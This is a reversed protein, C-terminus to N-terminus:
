PSKASMLKFKYSYYSNPVINGIGTDNLYFTSAVSGDIKKLQYFLPVYLNNSATAYILLNTSFSGMLPMYEVSHVEM